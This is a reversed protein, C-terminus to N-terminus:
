QYSAGMCKNFYESDAIQTCFTHHEEPKTGWSTIAAYLSQYCINKDEPKVVECFKILRTPDGAYRGALGNTLGTICSAHLKPDKVLNCNNTMINFDQTSGVQNSGMINICGEQYPSPVQLCLNVVEPWKHHSIIVFHSSQYRYCIELYKTDLINCPYMPDSEKTFKSNISLDTSSSSNEMFVGGYCDERMDINSLVDCYGLSDPLNSDTIFMMAHGIGHLCEHYLRINPKGKETNCISLIAKQLKTTDAKGPNLENEDFYAELVGHYCGGWCASTCKGYSKEFVHENHYLQRGLYHTVEHCRAFIAEENEHEKFTNLIAPISLKKMLVDAVKKYCKNSGGIAYCDKMNKRIYEFTEKENMEVSKNGKLPSFLSTIQHWLVQPFNLPREKKGSTKGIVTLTGRMHPFEHDHYKWQGVKLATFSWTQKPPIPQQPDFESYIDHTPHPNSAPWRKKDTDNIFKVLTNKSVIAERPVFGEHTMHIIFIKQSLTTYTIIVGIFVSLFFLLYVKKM